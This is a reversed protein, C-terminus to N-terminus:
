PRSCTSRRADVPTTDSTRLERIHALIEDAVAEDRVDALVTSNFSELFPYIQQPTRGVVADPIMQLLRFDACAQYFSRLLWAYQEPSGSKRFLAKFTLLVREDLESPLQAKRDQWIRLHYTIMQQLAWEDAALYSDMTAREYDVRRDMALYWGALASMDAPALTDNTRIAEFMQIAEALKGREALLRALSARWPSVSGGAAIWQRLDRELDDPRDLAILMAHKMARWADAVKGGHAIGADIFKLLREILEPKAERRAALYSVIALHRGRFAGELLAKRVARSRAQADTAEATAGGNGGAEGSKDTEPEPEAKQIGDEGIAAEAEAPPKPPADGLVAWCAAATEDIQRELRVDLTMRELQMWRGLADGNVIREIEAPDVTAYGVVAGRSAAWEALRDAVGARAAKLFEQEKAAVEARTLKEPHGMGLLEQRATRRAGSNHPGGAPAACAVASRTSRNGGSGRVTESATRVGRGRASREVAASVASRVVAVCVRQSLGQECARHARLFPLYDSEVFRSSYITVLAQGLTDGVKPDEAADWRKRIGQAIARWQDAPMVPPGNVTWSVLTVLQAPTLSEVEEQVRGFLERRLADAEDSDSFYWNGLIQSAIETQREHTMYRKAVAALPTLWKTEFRYVNINHRQGLAYDVAARLRSQETTSLEGGDEGLKLWEEVLSECQALRDTFVLASLYREDIQQDEPRKDAQEGLWDAEDAYRGEGHLLDAYAFVLQDKEDTVRRENRDLEQRLWQYAADRQGAGHLDNAYAVQRSADWPVATALERELALLEDTRVLSRLLDIRRQQWQAVAGIHEPQAAFVPKIADLLRLQENADGISAAVNLLHGALAFEDAHEDDVLQKAEASMRAMAEANRRAAQELALRIWRLGAWNEGGGAAAPRLAEIAALVKFAEDWEQRSVRDALLVLRAELGASGSAAAEKAAQLAPLPSHIFLAPAAASPTSTGRRGAGDPLEGDFQQQFEDATLARITQTTRSTVAESANRTLIREAWWVGAVQTFDGFITTSTPKGDFLQKREYLVHRQVDITLRTENHTDGPQTLVLVVRDDSPREIKM